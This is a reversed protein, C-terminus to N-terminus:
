AVKRLVRVSLRHDDPNAFQYIDNFWELGHCEAREPDNAEIDDLWYEGVPGHERDEPELQEVPVNREVLVCVDYFM